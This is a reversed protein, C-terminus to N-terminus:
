SKGPLRSRSFFAAGLKVPVSRPVLRGSAIWARDLPHTVVCAKRKALADLGIKAVAEPTMEPFPTAEAGRMGAVSYFSTKTYGPCLCTVTVGDKKAEEHLAQSFSLIFAKSAGYAAFYPTPYFASTSAVNLIGGARRARMAVLFRHTLEATAVVNLQLMGLVRELPLEAEPGNLGYGADNVLISVARGSGETSAFVAERGEPTGLDAALFSADVGNAKSLEEALRALADGRRAVLFLDRGSEALLRAFSAGIGSSAGTVVALGGDAVSGGTVGRETM